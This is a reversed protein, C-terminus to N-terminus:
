SCRCFMRYGKPTKPSQLKQVAELRNRLLKVCVKKNEIFMENGMYQLSTQFLQCKQPSIKLGNKLLAKLLDELTDM